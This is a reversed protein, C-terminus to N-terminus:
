VDWLSRRTSSWGGRHGLVRWAMARARGRDFINAHFCKRDGHVGGSAFYRISAHTDTVYLFFGGALSSHPILVRRSVASVALLPLQSVKISDVPFM